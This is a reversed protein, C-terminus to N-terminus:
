TRVKVEKPFLGSMSNCPLEIKLKKLFQWVTKRLLQVM